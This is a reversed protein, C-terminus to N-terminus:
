SKIWRNAVTYANQIEDPLENFMSDFKRMKIKDRTDEDEDAKKMAKTAKMAKMAQKSSAKMVKM